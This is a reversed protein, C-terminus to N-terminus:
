RDHRKPVDFIEFSTGDSLQIDMFVLDPAPHSNFWQVAAKLSHLTEILEVDPCCNALQKRLDNAILKEDEVIVVKM